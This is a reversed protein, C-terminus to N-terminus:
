IGGAILCFFRGIKASKKLFSGGAPDPTVPM